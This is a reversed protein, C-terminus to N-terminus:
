SKRLRGTVLVDTVTLTDLPLLKEAWQPLLPCIAPTTLRDDPKTGQTAKGFGDPALANAADADRSIYRYSHPGLFDNKLVCPCPRLLTPTNAFAVWKNYWACAPADPSPKIPVQAISHLLRITGKTDRALFVMPWARQSRQMSDATMRQFRRHTRRACRVTSSSYGSCQKHRISLLLLLPASSPALIANQNSCSWKLLWGLLRGFM